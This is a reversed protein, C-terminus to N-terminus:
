SELRIKLEYSREIASKNIPILERIPRSLLFAENLEGRSVRDTGQAIMRKGSMHIVYTRFSFYIEARKLDKVLKHLKPSLSNGKMVAGEVTSNDAHMFLLAHYVKGKSAESQIGDVMCNKGIQSYAVWDQVPHMLFAM